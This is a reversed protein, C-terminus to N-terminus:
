VRKKKRYKEKEGSLRRWKRLEKRAEKKRERYEDDWWGRERRRDRQREGVAKLAKKVREEIERWEKDIEKGKGERREIRLSKRFREQGERDWVVKRIEQEKDKKRGRQTEGEVWIELPHHDSDIKDGIKMKGIRERTEKDGIVYDIV